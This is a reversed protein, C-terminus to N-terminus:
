VRVKLRQLIQRKVSALTDNTHTYIELDEMQRGQNPFRFLLVLQKGRPARFLPVFTREDCFDADCEQVYEHLVKLVRCLRTTEQKFKVDKDQELLTITDYSAKLRDICSSIFDEHIDVQNTQLRPGLNTFTEKLLEIAKNAITSSFIYFHLDCL